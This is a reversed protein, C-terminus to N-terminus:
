FTERRSFRCVLSASSPFHLIERVPPPPVSSADWTVASRARDAIPSAAGRAYLRSRESRSLHHHHVNATPPTEAVSPSTRTYVARTTYTGGARTHAGGGTRTVDRTKSRVNRTRTRASLCAYATRVSPRVSTFISGSARTAAIGSIRTRQGGIPRTDGARARERRRAVGPTLVAGIGLCGGNRKVRAAGHWKRRTREM